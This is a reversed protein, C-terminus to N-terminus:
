QYVERLTTIIELSEMTDAEEKTGVADYYELEVSIEMINRESGVFDWDFEMVNAYGDGAPFSIGMADRIIYAADYMDKENKVDQFYDIYLAMINHRAYKGSPESIIPKMYVFFAPRKVQEVKMISQINHNPFNDKLIKVVAIQIDSFTM